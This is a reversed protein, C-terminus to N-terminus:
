TEGLRAKLRSITKKLEIMKLERNIMSKNLIELEHARRALMEHNEVLETVDQVTGIIRAPKGNEDLMCQARHRVYRIQGNPHKIRHQIDFPTQDHYLATFVNKVLERDDPYIFRLFASATMPRHKRGFITCATESCTLPNDFLEPSRMEMHWSGIHAIMQAAALIQEKEHLQTEIRKQDTIDQCIGSLRIAKGNTDRLADAQERLVRIEGDPRIIRHVVTFAKKKRLAAQLAETLRERDDPHVSDYFRKATIKVKGPQFGFIRYVEPSWRGINKEFDPNGLDLEWSGLQAMRIAQKLLRKSASQPPRKTKQKAM